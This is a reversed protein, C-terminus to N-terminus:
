NVYTLEPKNKAIGRILILVEFGIKLTTKLFFINGCLNYDSDYFWDNDTWHFTLSIVFVDVM